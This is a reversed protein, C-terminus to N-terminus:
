KCNGGPVDPLSAMFFSMRTEMTSPDRASMEFAMLPLMELTCFRKASFNVVVGVDDTAGVRGVSFFSSELLVFYIMAPETAPPTNSM